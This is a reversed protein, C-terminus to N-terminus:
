RLERKKTESEAKGSLPETVVYLGDPYGRHGGVRLVRWVIGDEPDM